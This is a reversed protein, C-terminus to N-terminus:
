SVTIGDSEGVLHSRGDPSVLEIQDRNENREVVSIDQDAIPGIGAAKGENPYALTTDRAIREWTDTTYVGRGSHSFTLLYKGTSDFGM